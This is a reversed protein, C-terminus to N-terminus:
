IYGIHIYLGKRGGCGLGRVGGRRFAGGFRRSLARKRAASHPASRKDRGGGASPGM